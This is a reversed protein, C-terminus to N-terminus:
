AGLYRAELRRTVADVEDPVVHKEDAFRRIQELYDTLYAVAQLRKTEAEDIGRVKIEEVEKRQLEEFRTIIRDFEAQMAGVDMRDLRALDEARVGCSIEPMGGLERAAQNVAEALKVVAKAAEVSRDILAKATGSVAQRKKDYGSSAMNRAQGLLEVLKGVKAQFQTIAQEWAQLKKRADRYGPYDPILDALYVDVLTEVEAALKRAAEETRRGEKRLESERKRAESLEPSEPRRAMRRLAPGLPFGRRELRRVEDAQAALAASRQRWAVRLHAEEVLRAHLMQPVNAAARGIPTDLTDSEFLM